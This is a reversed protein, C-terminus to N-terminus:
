KDELKGSVESSQNLMPDDGILPHTGNLYEELNTWGDGDADQWPLLSLGGHRQEWADAMGDSDTDAPGSVTSPSVAWLTALPNTRIGGASNGSTGSALVDSIHASDVADRSRSAGAHLNLSGVADSASVISVVESTFRVSQPIAADDKLYQDWSSWLSGNWENVEFRVKPSGQIEFANALFRTDPGKKYYNALFQLRTANSAGNMTGANAAGFEIGPHDYGWNFIVNNVAEFLCGVTDSDVADGLHAFVPNREDNSSMFCGILSYRGGHKGRWLVGKSHERLTQNVLCWQATIDMEPQERPLSSGPVTSMITKDPDNPDPIKEKPRELVNVDLGGDAGWAISCHDIIFRTASNISIADPEGAVVSAQRVTVAVVPWRGLEGSDEEGASALWLAYGGPEGNGPPRVQGGSLTVEAPEAAAAAGQALVGVAVEPVGANTLGSIEVASVSPTVEEVQNLNNVGYSMSVQELNSLMAGGAGAALAVDRHFERRNGIADYEYSRGQGAV